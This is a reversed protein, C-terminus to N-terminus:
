PTPTQTLSYFHAGDADDIELLGALPSPVAVLGRKLTLTLIGSAIRAEQKAAPEIVGATEPYFYADRIAKDPTLPVTLVLAAADSKATLIPLPKPTSSALLKRIAEDQASPVNKDGVPLTLDLSAKEPVCEESCVLWTADVKLPFKGGAIGGPPPTIKVLHDASGEYVYGLLPGFPMRKPPQWAIESATAGPPLTWHLAPALGADGPNKWYTHWGPQIDLRFLVWFPSKGDIREYPAALTATTHGQVVRSDALTSGVAACYLTLAALAVLSPLTSRM